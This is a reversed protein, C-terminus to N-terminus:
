NDNHNGYITRFTLGSDAYSSPPYHSVSVEPLGPQRRLALVIGQAAIESAKTPSRFSNTM